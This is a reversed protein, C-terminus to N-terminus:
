EQKANAELRERRQKAGASSCSSAADSASLLSPFLADDDSKKKTAAGEQQKQAQAVQQQQQQQNTAKSKPEQQPRKQENGSSAAGSASASAAAAAAPQNHQQQDPITPPATQGPGGYHFVSVQIGTNAFEECMLKMVSDAGSNSRDEFVLRDLGCGLEPVSVSPVGNATMHQVMCRLSSRLTSYTPKNNYKPKTILYYIFRNEQPRPLVACGGVGIKQAKLVDVGGFDNKFQVAIGKGMHLDESVCHALSNRAAFLDGVFEVIAGGGPLTTTRVAM